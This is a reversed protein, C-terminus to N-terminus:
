PISRGGGSRFTAPEFGAPRTRFAGSSPNERSEDDLTEADVEIETVLASVFDDVPRRRNANTLPHQVKDVHLALVGLLVDFL